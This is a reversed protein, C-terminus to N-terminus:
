KNYKVNLDLEEGSEVYYAKNIKIIDCIKQNHISLQKVATSKKLGEIVNEKTLEKNKYKQILITPLSDSMVGFILDFEHQNEESLNNVRNNFVFEAFEDDYANLIKYNYSANEFWELPVFSFEIVVPIKKDKNEKIPLGFSETISDGVESNDYELVNKIFTEAKDRQPTLYFGFGFDLENGKNYDAKVGMDCIKKFGDLTTAHYWKDSSLYKRVKSKM